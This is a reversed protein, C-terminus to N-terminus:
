ASVLAVFWLLFYPLHKNLQGFGLTLASIIVVNKLFISYFIIKSEEILLLL